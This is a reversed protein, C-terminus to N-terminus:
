RRTDILLPTKGSHRNRAFQEVACQEVDLTLLGTQVLTTLTSYNQLQRHAEAPELPCRLRMRELGDPGHDLVLQFPTQLHQELIVLSIFDTGIRLLNGHRQLLEFRPSTLSCACPGPLWRGSDGIDYRQV